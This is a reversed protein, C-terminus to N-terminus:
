PDKELKITVLKKSPSLEDDDEEKIDYNSLDIFVIDDTKETKTEQETMSTIDNSPMDDEKDENEEDNHPSTIDDEADKNIENTESTSEEDEVEYEFFGTKFYNITEVDETVKKTRYIHSNKNHNFEIYKIKFLNQKRIIQNLNDPFYENTDMGQEEMIEWASLKTIKYVNNDFIVVQVYGSEDFIRVIIKFRHQAEYSKRFSILPQIDKNILISTGFLANHITPKDFDLHGVQDLKKAYENWMHAWNDWFTCELRLSQADEIVVTRSFKSCGYENVVVINGIAVFTGVVYGEPSTTEYKEKVMMTNKTLTHIKWDVIPYKTALSEVNITIDDVPVIDLCARLEEKKADDEELKQKKVSKKIMIQEQDRRVVKPKSKRETIFDVLMRAQEDVTFQEREEQQLREALLADADIRAQVDEIQEILAAEKAEQEAAKGTPPPTARRPEEEVDHIVLSTTRPRTRRIAMLTDAMTTMEDEFIDEVTSTSPGAVSVDPIVSAANVADGATSVPKVANVDKEAATTYDFVGSLPSDYPSPPIFDMLDDQHKMRGEGSGYTNVESLPPDHSKKSTTEFRTQAASDGLTTDHCEAELSTATTAARVVRDDEGIYIAEDGVTAVHEEHSPLATSSPPQLETPQGSGEGKVIQPVLMSAFLPTVIGSFDRNQRKINTFVKKTHAPTVYVDNFPEILDIPSYPKLAVTNVHRAVSTSAAARHSSQKAANIPVLGSKTLVAVPVFKRKPHPHTLKNRHNVTVTNDWVLRNEKPGNNKGKNKLVSKEVRPSQRLKRPKEAKSENEVTTNRANVFEIKELSPKVTKKVETKEVVNEDESDLEWEKIISASSRVIKPKKLSDKSTKSTNTEPKPVSTITESVKSKFVSDDPPTSPPAIISDKEPAIVPTVHCKGQHLLRSCLPDGHNVDLLANSSLYADENADTTINDCDGVFREKKLPTRLIVKWGVFSRRECVRSSPSVSDNNVNKPSDSDCSDVDL